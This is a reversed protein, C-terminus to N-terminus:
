LMNELEERQAKSLSKVILTYSHEILKKILKSELGRECYMTNWHTKNMHFGPEIDEHEERLEVAYDPDCKVNIQADLTDTPLIAFIKKMVRFCITIDDFPTDETAGKLSLCYLRIEEINM